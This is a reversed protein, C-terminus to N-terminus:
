ITNTHDRVHCTYMHLTTYSLHHPTLYLYRYTSLVIGPLMGGVGISVLGITNTNDISPVLYTNSLLTNSAGWYYIALIVLTYTTSHRSLM